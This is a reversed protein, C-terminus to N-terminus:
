KRIGGDPKIGLENMFEEVLDSKMKVIIGQENYSAFRKNHIEKLKAKEIKDGSMLVLYGEERVQNPLMRRAARDDIIDADSYEERFDDYPNGKHTLEYVYGRETKKAGAGQKKVLERVTTELTM